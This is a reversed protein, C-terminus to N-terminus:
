KLTSIFNDEMFFFDMVPFISSHIDIYTPTYIYVCKTQSSLGEM